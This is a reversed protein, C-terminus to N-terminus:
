PYEVDLENGAYYDQIESVVTKLKSKSFIKKVITNRYSEIREHLVPHYKAPVHKLLLTWGLEIDPANKRAHNILSEIERQGTRAVIQGDGRIAFIVAIAIVANADLDSDKIPGNFHNLRLWKACDVILQNSKRDQLENHYVNDGAWSSSPDANCIEFFLAKVNRQLIFPDRDFDSVFPVYPLNSLEKIHRFGMQFVHEAGHHLLFSLKSENDDPIQAQSMGLSICGVTLNFAELLGEATKDNTFKQAVLVTIGSLEEVLELATGQANERQSLAQLALILQPPRPTVSTLQM